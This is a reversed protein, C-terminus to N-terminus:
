EDDAVAVRFDLALHRHGADVVEADLVLREETRLRPERDRVALSTDVDIDRRLPQVDVAVLDRGTQVQFRPLHPDMKAADAAREPSALVQGHLDVSRHERQVRIPGDLDHVAAFLGEDTVDM